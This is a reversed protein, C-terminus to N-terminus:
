TIMLLLLKKKSFVPTVKFYHATHKPHSNPGALRLGEHTILLKVHFMMTSLHHKPLTKRTPTFDDVLKTLGRTSSTKYVEENPAIGEDNM